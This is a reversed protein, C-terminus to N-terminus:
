LRKGVREYTFQQGCRRCNVTIVPRPVTANKREHVLQCAWARNTRAKKIRKAFAGLPKGSPMNM